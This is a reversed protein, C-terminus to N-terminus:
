AIKSDSACERKYFCAKEGDLAVDSKISIRKSM